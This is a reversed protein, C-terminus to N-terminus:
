KKTGTCSDAASPLAVAALPAHGMRRWPATGDGPNNALHATGPFSLSISLSFFLSVFCLVGPRWFPGDSVFTSMTRRLACVFGARRGVLALLLLLHFFLLLFLCASNTNGRLKVGRFSVARSIEKPHLPTVLFALSSFPSGQFVWFRARPCKESM